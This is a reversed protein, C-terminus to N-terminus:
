PLVGFREALERLEPRPHLGSLQILDRTVARAIRHTRTQEPTLREAEQLSHLAEGIQRRMAQAQSLDILYRAQREPSLQSADVEQALDLAQGADGLEVAIAVAHITVNTPGFETGYDNRDGGIREAITRATALHEYAQARANDRAASVALILQFGGYLSLAESEPQNSIRTELAAVAAKAVEQAQTVQSLSLFTHAMRFLSAAVALPAGITEAIFAARDAAVWAADTEALKALIAATAQYTDTLLERASRRLDDSAVGRVAAELDSILSRLIPALESYRSAHVMSWVQEHRERLENLQQETVQSHEGTLVTWIAPHGTLMLRLLEFDESREDVADADDEAGRLEAVSVSLM